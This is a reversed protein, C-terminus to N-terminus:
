HLLLFTLFILLTIPIPLYQDNSIIILLLLLLFVCSVQRPLWFGRGGLYSPLAFCCNWWEFVREHQFVGMLVELVVLM